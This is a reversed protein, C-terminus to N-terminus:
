LDNDKLRKLWATDCAAQLQTAGAVKFITGCVEGGMQLNINAANFIADVKMKIIDQRIITFPM